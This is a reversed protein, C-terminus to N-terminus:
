QQLLRYFTARNTAANDTYTCVGNANNVATGNTTWNILDHSSLVAFTANPVSSITLQFQGGGLYVPSGITPTADILLYAPLEVEYYSYDPININFQSVPNTATWTFTAMGVNTGQGSGAYFFLYEGDAGYLNVGNYDWPIGILLQFQYTHGLVLNTFNIYVNQDPDTDWWQHVHAWTNVLNSVSLDSGSYYYQSASQGPISGSGYDSGDGGTVVNSLNTDFNIGEVNVPQVTGMPGLNSARVVVGNTLWATAPNVPINEIWTGQAKASELNSMGLLVIGALTITSILKIKM